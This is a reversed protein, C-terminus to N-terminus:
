HSSGSLLKVVTLATSYGRSKFQLCLKWAQFMGGNQVKCCLASRLAAKDIERRSSHLRLQQLQLAALLCCRVRIGYDGLCACVLDASGGIAIRCDQQSNMTHAVKQLPLVIVASLSASQRSGLVM